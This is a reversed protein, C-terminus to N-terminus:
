AARGGGPHHVLRRRSVKGGMANLMNALDVIEPERAANEICTTGHATIAAMLCNETAGVSPFELTVDAGHLGNPTHANLYRPGRYVGM